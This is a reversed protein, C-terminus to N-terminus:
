INYQHAKYMQRRLSVFEIVFKLGDDLTTKPQWGLLTRARDAGAILRDVESRAPRMREHCPVITLERGLIAGVKRIVEGITIGVGTGSNVVEGPPVDAEALRVFADVTDAVFTFDRITDVAGIEISTADLAQSVITPIVARASQRPGFTNFPRLTVVPTGFARAYSEALMDAGMKTASYPSQAQLPHREDIPTYLASGYVESTSTHVVRRTGFRKAAELVNLTGGINTAVYSEPANYSYPIGILAALHFVVDKGAVAAHVSTADRVDGQVIRIQRLVEAQVLELLGWDTRSNYHVLATVDAGDGVLRECLHSGIFGGAGTVLVKSGKLM